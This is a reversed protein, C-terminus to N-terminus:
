EAVDEVGFNVPRIHRQVVVTKMLQSDFSLEREAHRFIHRIRLPQCSVGLVRNFCCKGDDLEVVKTAARRSSFPSLFQDGVIPHVCTNHQRLLLAM